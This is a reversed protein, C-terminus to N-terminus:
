INYAKSNKLSKIVQMIELETSPSVFFSSSNVKNCKFSSSDSITLGSVLEIPKTIFTKNFHEAILNPDEIVSENDVINNIVRHSIKSSNITKCVVNSASKSKNEPEINEKTNNKLNKYSIYNKLKTKSIALNDKYVSNCSNQILSNEFLKVQEFLAIKTIDNARIVKSSGSKCAL